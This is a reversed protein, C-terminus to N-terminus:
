RDQGTPDARGCVTALLPDVRLRDHDNLDEYGLVLGFVRQKVLEEVTFEIAQQDRHDTFCRAFESVMSQKLELERLLLAGGDTTILGGDFAAEVARAGHAQFSLKGEKCETMLLSAGLRTTLRRQLLVEVMIPLKTM